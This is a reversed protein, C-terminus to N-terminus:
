SNHLERLADSDVKEVASGLTEQYCHKNRTLQNLNGAETYTIPGCAEESANQLRKYLANVGRNSSIDLDAFSVKIRTTETGVNSGASAVAPLALVATISAVIISKRIKSEKV